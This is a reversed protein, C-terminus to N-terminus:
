SELQQLVSTKQGCDYAHLNQQLGQLLTTIDQICFDIQEDLSSGGVLEIEQDHGIPLELMENNGPEEATNHTIDAVNTSQSMFSLAHANDVIPLVAYLHPFLCQGILRIGYLHKCESSWDPCDCYSCQM